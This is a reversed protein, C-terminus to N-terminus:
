RQTSRAQNDGNQDDTTKVRKKSLILKILNNQSFSHKFHDIFPHEQTM